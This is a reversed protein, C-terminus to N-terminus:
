AGIISCGPVKSDYAVSKRIPESAHKRHSSTIYRVVVNTIYPVIGLVDM